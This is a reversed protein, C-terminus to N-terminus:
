VVGARVLDHIHLVGVPRDEQVAFLVTVPPQAENMRKLAEAALTNPPVTKPTRTMVEGATHTMLGDMHRRLDGDTIVGQLRGHEDCVAVCGFRKETIVLLTDQMSTHPAVVPVEAGTHMLDSVTLLMAGIRGGPHLVRFEQATFGRRELLAVALADGLAMQLTTSTTPASVESTAEPEDPIILPVDAARGLTSRPNSTIAVLPISFRKAYELTDALERVEGSKSLILMVDEPNIMGLDGHSAEALHVFISQTGTSALTAALKRAVHGSKGVGMCVVRGTALYLLEVAEVFSAGLGASLRELAQAECSLVRRGVAIIDFDSM